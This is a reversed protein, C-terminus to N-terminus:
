LGWGAAACCPCGRHVVRLSGFEPSAAEALAGVGEDLAEGGRHGEVLAKRQVVDASRQRMGLHQDAGPHEGVLLEARNASAERLYALFDLAIAEGPAHRELVHVHVDLCAKRLAYTDGALFQVRPARAVVLDGGVDPQPQAGLDVADVGLERPQLRRQDSEGLALGGRDHGAEGMQLRCLRHGEAVVHQGPVFHQLAVM